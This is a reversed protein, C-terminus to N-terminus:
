RRVNSLYVSLEPTWFSPLPIDVLMGQYDEGLIYATKKINFGRRKMEEFPQKLEKLEKRMEPREFRSHMISPKKIILNDIDGIANIDIRRSMQSILVFSIDEHRSISILKDLFKSEDSYWDRAHHVLHIDDLVVISHQYFVPDNPDEQEIWDPLLKPDIKRFPMVVTRMYPHYQELALFAFSTKGSGRGGIIVSVSPHGLLEYLDKFKSDSEIGIPNLVNGLCNM